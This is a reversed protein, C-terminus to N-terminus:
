KNNFGAETAVVVQRPADSGAPLVETFLPSRANFAQEVQGAAGLVNSVQGVSAVGDAVLEGRNVFSEAQATGAVAVGLVAAVLIKKM